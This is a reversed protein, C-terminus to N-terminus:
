AGLLKKYETILEEIINKHFVSIKKLKDNEEIYYEIQTVPTYSNYNAADYWFQTGDENQEPAADVIDGNDDIYYRLSNYQEVDSEIKLQPVLTNPTGDENLVQIYKNTYSSSVLSQQLGSGDLESKIILQGLDLNRDIIIGKIGSVVGQVTDGVNYISVKQTDNYYAICQHTTLTRNPFRERTNNYIEQATLPWGSTRLNDNLLFFTWHYATTGYLKQSLTDPRDDDGIDLSTYTEVNDKLHDLLDVYVSINNFIVRAEDNGFKYFVNPFHRFFDSM